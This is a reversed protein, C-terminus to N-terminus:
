TNLLWNEAEERATFVRFANGKNTELVMEGFRGTDAIKSPIIAAVKINYNIFKQLMRGAVGTKLSFFDESLAEGHILLMNIEHEWSLSIIDLADQESQLPMDSSELAIYKKVGKEIINYNM